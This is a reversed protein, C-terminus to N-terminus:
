HSVDSAGSAARFTVEAALPITRATVVAEEGDLVGLDESRLFRNLDAAVTHRDV